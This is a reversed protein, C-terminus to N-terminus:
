TFRSSLRTLMTTMSMNTASNVDVVIM